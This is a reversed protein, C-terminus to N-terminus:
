MYGLGQYQYQGNNSAIAGLQNGSQIITPAPDFYSETVNMGIYQLAQQIVNSYEPQTRLFEKLNAAIREAEIQRQQTGLQSAMTARNGLDSSYPDQSQSAAYAMQANMQNNANNRGVAGEYVQQAGMGMQGAVDTAGGVIARNMASSSKGAGMKYIDEKVQPALQNQYYNQWYPNVNQYYQSLQQKPDVNQVANGALTRNYADMRQQMSRGQGSAYQGGLAFAQEQLPSAGASLNGQYREMGGFGRDRLYQGLRDSINKQNASLTSVQKPAFM